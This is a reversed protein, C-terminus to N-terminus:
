RPQSQSPAPKTAPGPVKKTNADQEDPRKTGSNTNTAGQGSTVAGKAPTPKVNKMKNVDTQDGGSTTKPNTSSTPGAQAFALTSALTAALVVSGLTSKHFRM